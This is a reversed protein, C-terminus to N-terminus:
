KNISKINKLNSGILYSNIKNTNRKKHLSSNHLLEEEIIKIHHLLLETEIEPLIAESYITKIGSVVDIKFNIPYYQIVPSNENHMLDALEPPLLYSMQPPLIFMLQQYPTFPEDKDFTISNLNYKLQHIITFMDSVLPSARYKYHWNWSPVGKLYYHLTFMLSEFYNVCVNMKLKNKQPDDNSINFFYDYYQAKWVRHENLYNVHTFERNYEEFLPHLSSCVDVHQYKHMSLQYESLSSDFQYKKKGQICRNIDMQHKKMLQDERNALEYIIEKFFSMNILEIPNNNINSSTTNDNILFINNGLKTKIANYIHLLTNLGDKRIKLFPLSIVFDNGVLFLLFNYDNLIKYKINDTIHSDNFTSSLAKFAEERCRDIILYLYDNNPFREHEDKDKHNVERLIYINNKHTFMSLTLLDGDKGFIVVNCNKDITNTKLSKILKMFKHEGEGPVNSDSLLIKMNNNHTNFYKNIITDLLITTLKEMFATGPSINPSPDWILNNSINKHDYKTKMDEEFTKIQVSKYRRSRQQVMKAHPAVGDFSIFTLKNPKVINCIINYTYQITTNIIEDELKNLNSYNNHKVQEYATYIIGNFDIFLYDYKINTPAVIAVDTINTLFSKFLSPIGM